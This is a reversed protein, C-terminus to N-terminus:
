IGAFMRGPNFIRDPDLETKLRHHIKMLAPSLATFAGSDVRAANTAARFLTAHGGHQAAIDRIVQAPQSSRLWRLGGGWEIWQDGLLQDLHPTTTPVSLRWLHLSNHDGAAASGQDATSNLVSPNFFDPTQDRLAQWFADASSEAMLEGGLKTKANAIAANAGSLRVHLMGKCWSTASIPLPQSGWQNVWDIATQATTEFQLTAQAHPMPLVKISLDLMLGLTGLAGTHLRSLDYGAVNKMVTGGYRLPTAQADLVTMGLVFDKVAGASMRRPGSLGTAVMGGVTGKGGFRPPEFALMQKSAALTSELVSLPTGSKVVVVLETPDYDVIGCHDLTSLMQGAAAPQGYFQKSGHGEILLPQKNKAAARITESAAVVWQDQINSITM